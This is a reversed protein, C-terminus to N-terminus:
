SAALAVRVAMLPRAQARVVAAGEVEAIVAAAVLALRCDLRPRAVQVVVVALGM